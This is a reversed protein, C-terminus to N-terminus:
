SRMGFMFFFGSLLFYIVLGLALFALIKEFSDVKRQRNRCDPCLPVKEFHFLPFHVSSYGSRIAHFIAEDGNMKSACKHCIIQEDSM